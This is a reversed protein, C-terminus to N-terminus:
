KSRKEIAQALATFKDAPLDALKGSHGIEKLCKGIVDTELNLDAVLMYIKQAQDKSIKADPKPKQEKVASKRKPEEGGFAKAATTEGSNIASAIGRLTAVHEGTIDSAKKIGLLKLVQTETVGLNAFYALSKKAGESVEKKTEGGAMKLAKQYLPWWLSKPIVVLVANRRAISAGANSTVGVMDDDYRIGDRNTIRRRVRVREANNTQLDHCISECIVYKGEESVLDRSIRLNGYSYAVIEAFRANPGQIVKGGRPLAYNLCDEPKKALAMHKEILDEATTDFKALDRPYARATAIQTDIEAKVLANVPIPEKEVTFQADLTKTTM